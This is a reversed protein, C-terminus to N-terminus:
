RQALSTHPAHNLREILFYYYRMNEFILKCVFMEKLAYFMDCLNHNTLGSRCLNSGCPPHTTLWPREGAAATLNKPSSLSQGCAVVAGIWVASPNRALTSTLGLRYGITQCSIPRLGGGCDSKKCCVKM